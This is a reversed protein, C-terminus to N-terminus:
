RRCGSRSWCKRPCGTTCRRAVSKACRKMSSHASAARRSAKPAPISCSDAHRRIGGVIEDVRRYEPHVIELGLPGRRVDGFCRLGRAVRWRMRSLARSISSGCRSFGSGDSIRCLLQRRRRFTVETLQIEGEVAVRTGPVLAGMPVVQTRDEYRLPLVFLLDEFRRSASSRSGSPSRMASVACRPSRGSNRM